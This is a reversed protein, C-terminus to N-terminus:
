NTSNSPATFQSNYLDAYFTDGSLLEDHTGKEIINGDKMVLILDASKITSLRHAIVFSTKGKMVYSMAKQIETETRTDVSSTAEDLIMLAPDALIARAITLLQMQGQSISSDESSLITDYGHELTRIFHDCRAAKAAQVIEKQTADMRGYAINQAITGKFLWTDQLVIGILKRLEKKPLSHIDVGDICIKGGNLEYFRMLLNVLTTKGAGTPGVIAVMENANVSFSIDKMLLSDPHYGFRVHQFEVTGKPATVPEFDTTDPNEEKEDLFEFVREASALGTQLSNIFYSSQTIPESIQNVYQLFAQVTGITLTGRVVFIGGVIATMVFGTQTLFRIIPYIAYLLFQAKKSVQYQRQSIEEVIRAAEEQQNFSKLILNGSYFEEIKGNLEGLVTQNESAVQFNKGAIWSAAWLSAAMSLLILITLLPHLLLMLGVSLTITVVANIFQSAGTTLVEAVRDLDNTVRSLLEGTQKSDYYGLPLKNIKESMQKRISLVLTEGVSAMTYEQIFSFLSSLSYAALLILLPPGLISGLAEVNGTIGQLRIHNVLRDIAVGMILPTASYLAIGTLVSTLLIILSKKQAALLGLLRKLTPLTHKPVEALDYDTPTNIDLQKDNNEM